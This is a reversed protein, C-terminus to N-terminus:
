NEKPEEEKEEEEESGFLSYSIGLSLGSIRRGGGELNTRYEITLGTRAGLKWEAGAGAVPSLFRSSYSYTGDDEDETTEKLRSLELGTLLYPQFTEFKTEGWRSLQIRALDLGFSEATSVYGPSGSRSYAYYTELKWDFAFSGLKLEAAPDLAVGTRLSSTRSEGYSDLSGDLSLSVSRAETKPPTQAFAAAPTFFTLAAALYFLKTM